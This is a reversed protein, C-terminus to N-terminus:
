PRCRRRASSRPADAAELFAVADDGSREVRDAIQVVAIEHLTFSALRAVGHARGCTDGSRRTRDLQREADIQAFLSRDSSVSSPLMTATDDIMVTTDSM